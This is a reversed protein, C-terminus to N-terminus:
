RSSFPFLILLSVWVAFFRAFRPMRPVGRSNSWRIWIGSKAGDKAPEIKTRSKCNM